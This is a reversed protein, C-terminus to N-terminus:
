GERGSGPKGEPTLIRLIEELSEKIQAMDLGTASSGRGKEKLKRRAGEITMKETYLLRKIEVLTELDERRYTRQGSDARHPKIQSFEKEWYRLVSPEVGLIGATEGIRFYRKEDPIQIM